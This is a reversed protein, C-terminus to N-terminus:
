HSKCQRRVAVLGHHFVYVYYSIWFLVLIFVFFFGGCCHQFAQFAGFILIVSVSYLLVYLFEGSKLMFLVM